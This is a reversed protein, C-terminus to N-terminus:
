YAIFCAYKNTQSILLKSVQLLDIHKYKYTLL